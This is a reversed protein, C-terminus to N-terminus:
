FHQPCFGTGCLKTRLILDQLTFDKSCSKLYKYHVILLISKQFVYVLLPVYILSQWHTPRHVYTHADVHAHTQPCVYVRVGLCVCAHACAHACTPTRVRTHVRPLAVCEGVTSLSLSLSLSVCVCFVCVCVGVCVCVCVHSHPPNASLASRAAHEALKHARPVARRCRHISQAMMQVGGKANTCAFKQCGKTCRHSSSSSHHIHTLIIHTHTHTRTRTHSHAHIHTHRRTHTNPSPLVTKLCRRLVGDYSM